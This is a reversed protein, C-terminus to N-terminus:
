KTDENETNEDDDCNRDNGRKTEELMETFTFERLKQAGRVGRNQEEVKLLLEMSPHAALSVHVHHQRRTFDAVAQEKLVKFYLADASENYRLTLERFRNAKSHRASEKKLENAADAAEDSGESSPPEIGLDDTLEDAGLDIDSSGAGIADDLDFGEDSGGGGMGGGGIDTGGEMGSLKSRSATRTWKVIDTPSLFSYKAMVDRVIDAPLGEEEEAGIASRILDLVAKTMELSDSRARAKEESVEEAPYRLSLTFPTRFDYQGNIAFHLRFLDALSELFATQLSFVSRAFPKFQETLSIASNGFGGWEQVLYGKPIGTAVAVRDQYMAIDDTFGIDVKSEKVDVDMLGDPMWIKTNVSYVESNGGAPNIGVNDYEQRVRDVTAFQLSEDAKDTTKVKYLTVPFSLIRAISQLTITSQALKFPALTGLIPSVGFPAFESSDAEVRFHTVSWPPVVLDNEIVYGFLKTDLMDAFDMSESMEDLMQQILSNKDALMALQGERRKKEELAKIPNFELRDSVQLQKMPIIREVGQDSVKNAWFADGFTALQEITSRIRQQTIGWKNLLMYMERTMRVDPSEIAIIQDQIDLQTAEDAYLKVVRGIFPDNLKAYQLQDVRRRRESIEQVSDQTDSLWDNFLTELRNSLKGGGLGIAKSVAQALSENSGVDVAQFEISKGPTANNKSSTGKRWGYLTTLFRQFGSKKIQSKPDSGSTFEAM